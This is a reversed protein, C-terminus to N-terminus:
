FKYGLEMGFTRPEGPLAVNLGLAAGLPTGGIYYPKNFANKVFGALSLGTGGINHIDARFDVLKYHPLKADPNTTDAFNSFYQGDQAYVSGRLTFDGLNNPLPASFQGYLSGSVKPTDAYTGATFTQGFLAVSPSTYRADTVALTVGVQFWRALNTEADMEIGRVEAEPINTTIASLGSPLVLYISRQVNSIWQNYLALTVRSQLGLLRGNFKAGVEVDHTKESLFLNGGSAATVPVPPSSGNFGGARWSGRSEVYLLLNPNAQYELGVQWSPAAFHAGEPAGSAYRSLPFPRIHEQDWSYRFGGTFSLGQVGTLSALNYTGQAYIAQTWSGTRYDTDGVAPAPRVPVLDFSESDQYNDDREYGYYAGIVFDLKRDFAKGLLQLEDSLQDTFIKNGISGRGNSQEQIGYPSGDKDQADHSHSKAAGFINKIQLDGTLDYSTTNTVFYSSGIHFNPADISIHWPDHSRQQEIFAILGGAPANPHTALYRDWAGPQKITADLSPGFFCAASTKLVVGNRPPSGCAYASWAIPNVNTGRSRDYEFVTLNKLGDVPQLTLSVRGSQRRQSGYDLGDVSNHQFGDRSVIDGAVRLLVKDQVIPVNVSGLFERLSYDGLKFTLSGGFDNTPKATNYLVAGGTVNRGFLTGQPGKLVQVSELDYLSSATQDTIQVDNTYTLVAAHSGSFADISQARLSYSLQNANQTGRLVLGPVAKQLDQQQTVGRVALESSGFASVSVPVRELRESKRRATVVISDGNGATGASPAAQDAAPPAAAADVSQAHAPQGLALLALGAAGSELTIRRQRRVVDLMRVTKM